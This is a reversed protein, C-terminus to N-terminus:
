LTWVALYYGLAASLLALAPMGLVNIVAPRSPTPLVGLRVSEIAWTSFTTFGGFLGVAAVLLNTEAPSAGALVGLGFSGVVNVVLTGLPLAAKTRDQVAGALLFRCVAGLSGALALLVVTM